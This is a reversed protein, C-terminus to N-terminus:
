SGKARTKSDTDAYACSIAGVNGCPGPGHISHLQGNPIATNIASASVGAKADRYLRASRATFQTKTAHGQGGKGVQIAYSSVPVLVKRQFNQNHATM